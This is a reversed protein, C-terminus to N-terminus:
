KPIFMAEGTTKFDKPPLVNPKLLPISGQGPIPEAPAHLQTVFILLGKFVLGNAPINARVGPPEGKTDTFIDILLGDDNLGFTNM